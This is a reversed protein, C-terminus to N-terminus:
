IALCFTSIGGVSHSFNYGRFFAEFMYYSLRRNTALNCVDSIYLGILHAEGKYTKSFSVKREHKLQAPSRIRCLTQQKSFAVM